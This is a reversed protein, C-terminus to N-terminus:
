AAVFMGNCMRGCVVVVMVVVDNASDVGGLWECGVM